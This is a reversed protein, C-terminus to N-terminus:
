NPVSPYPWPPRQRGVLESVGLGLLGAGMLVCAVWDVWIM